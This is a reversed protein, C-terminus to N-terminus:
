LESQASVWFSFSLFGALQSVTKGGEWIYVLFFFSKLACLCKQTQFNYWFAISVVNM